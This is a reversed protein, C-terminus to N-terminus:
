SFCCVKAFNADLRAWEEFLPTVKQSLQFYDSLLPIPDV